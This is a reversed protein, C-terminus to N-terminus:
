TIYKLIPKVHMWLFCKKSITKEWSQPYASIDAAATTQVRYLNEFFHNTNKFYSTSVQLIPRHRVDPKFPLVAICAHRYLPVITKAMLIMAMKPM